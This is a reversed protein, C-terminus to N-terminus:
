ITPDQKPSETGAQKQEERSELEKVEEDSSPLDTKKKIAEFIRSADGDFKIWLNKILKTADM